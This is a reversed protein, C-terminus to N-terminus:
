ELRLTHAGTRSQQHEALEEFGVNLGVEGLLNNPCLLGMGLLSKPKKREGEKQEGQTSDKKVTLGPYLGQGPAQYKFSSTELWGSNLSLTKGGFRSVPRKGM